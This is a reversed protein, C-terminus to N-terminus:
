KEDSLAIVALDSIVVKTGPKFHFLNATIQLYSARKDLTITNYMM